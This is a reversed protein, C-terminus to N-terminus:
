IVYDSLARQYEPAHNGLWDYTKRLGDEFGIQPQWNLLERGLMNSSLLRDVESKAPRVREQRQEVEANKGSIKVILKVLDGVSIEKGSGLNIERGLVGDAEAAKIMGEATDDVFTFDRTPTLSGLKIVQSGFLLQAMVTPILARASQRPGYTNFPRITVVPLDFTKYYSEALRDAAIKSASYPSQAQVPHKEDIPVYRATGYTESTSTHVLRSIGAQRCANLVNLTGNVNVLTVETPNVYSYPISIMAGLHFVIECGDMARLVADADRLDGQMVEISRYLEPAVDHLWGFSGRSNYRVLARVKAGRRALLEVLHSGIFGGAGTVLVKRGTWNM